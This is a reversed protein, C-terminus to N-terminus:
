SRRRVNSFYAVLPTAPRNGTYPASGYFRPASTALPELVSRYVRAEYPVGGRHGYTPATHAGGRKALLRRVSGDPLRCTVIENFFTSVYVAPDRGLITITQGEM